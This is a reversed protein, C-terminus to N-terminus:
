SIKKNVFLCVATYGVTVRRLASDPVREPHVKDTYAAGEAVKIGLGRSKGLEVIAENLRCGTDILFIDRKEAM